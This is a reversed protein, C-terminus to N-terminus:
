AGPSPPGAAHLIVAGAAGVALDALTQLVRYLVALLGSGPGLVPGLALLFIGEQVGLGAPVFVALFGGVTALAVAGVFTPYAAPSVQSFSRVCWWAALGMLGARVVLLAATMTYPGAAPRAPLPVRGMRRLAANCISAFLRPHLCVTGMLGLGGVLAWGHPVERRFEATMALPLGAIFSIVVMLGTSLFMAALAVPLRVGRQALLAAAGAVAVVRGPIYRGLAAVWLPAIAAAPRLQAGLSGLLLGTCLGNLVRVVLLCVMAAALAPWDLAIAAFDIQRLNRALHRGAFFLVAVALVAYVALRVQPRLLSNM